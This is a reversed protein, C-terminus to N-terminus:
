NKKKQQQVINLLVAFLILTGRIVYKTFDGVGLLTMGNMLVGLFIIGIFTGRTNGIGGSLSAGGIIVASVVDMEYGRGFQSSGALVQSSMIVGAFAALTQVATMIIIKIKTVNIGSLRAAEPNGGVAYVERGFKTKNMIISVVAFVLLLWLAPVPFGQFTDSRFISGAGIVSFWDSSIIIPFGNSINASLGYMINMTALTVIFSPINYKARAVGNILGMITGTLLAAITGFIVALNPDIGAAVAKSSVLATLVASLGIGSGVSLDIEGGIIVMTMGFAIVGVIAMNRLIGLLNNTTFFGHAFLSLAIFMVVLIIEMTYKRTIESLSKIKM